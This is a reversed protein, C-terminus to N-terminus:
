RRRRFAQVLREVPTATTFGSTGGRALHGFVGSVSLGCPSLRRPSPLWEGIGARSLGVVPPPATLRGRSHLAEQLFRIRHGDFRGTTGRRHPRVAGRAPRPRRAVWLRGRRQRSDGARWPWCICRSVCWSGVHQCCGDGPDVVGGHGGPLSEADGGSGALGGAALGAVVLVAAGIRSSTRSTKRMSQIM